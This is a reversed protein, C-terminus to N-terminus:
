NKGYTNVFEIIETLCDAPTVCQMCLREVPCIGTGSRNIINPVLKGYGTVIGHEELLDLAPRSIVDTYLEKIGGIVMLAAAGKGVVKDAIVADKLIVPDTQLINLLDAVGRKHYCSLTDGKCIVLSCKESHLKAIADTINM